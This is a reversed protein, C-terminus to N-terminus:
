HSKAEEAKAETKGEDKKHKMKCKKCSKHTKGHSCKSCDCDGECDSKKEVKNEPAVPAAADEARIVPSLVLGFAIANLVVFNKMKVNNKM